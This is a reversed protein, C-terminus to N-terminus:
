ARKKRAAPAASRPLTACFRTGDQDSCEMELTGSMLVVLRHSVALGMGTGDACSLEKGLREFPSFLRRRQTDDMAPGTNSVRLQVRAQTASAQLDVRGGPVNYKVANSVLNLVVRQLWGADARVWLDSTPHTVIAVGAERADAQLVHAAFRMLGHVHIPEPRPLLDTGHLDLWEMFQSQLTAGLQAAEFL